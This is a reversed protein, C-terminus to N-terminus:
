RPALGNVLLETNDHCLQRFDDGSLNIRGGIYMQTLGHILATYALAIRWHEIPRLRGDAIAAAVHGGLLEFTPSEGTQFDDPFRRAGQREEIFMFSFLGPSELAVDVFLDVIVKSGELIDDPLRVTAWKAATETFCEDAVADLLAERNPFHRYVAMPTVGVIAGIKRMSVAQSGDTVVMEKAAALIRDRTGLM